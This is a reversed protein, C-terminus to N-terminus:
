TGFLEADDDIWQISGDYRTGMEIGIGQHRIDGNVKAGLHLSVQRARIEGDVEGHVVVRGATVKGTIKGNERVTLAACRVDGEIQGDLSIEGETSVSGFIKVDASIIAPKAAGQPQSGATAPPNLTNVRQM